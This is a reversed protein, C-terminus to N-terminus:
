EKTLLEQMREQLLLEDEPSYDMDIYAIRGNRDIICSVRRNYGEPLYSGYKRATIHGPDNIYQVDHTGLLEKWAQLLSPTSTSIMLKIYQKQIRMDDEVLKIEDIDRIQRGCFVFDEISIHPLIGPALRGSFAAPYFSLLVVQGKLDSLRKGDGLEFDPAEDGPQLPKDRAWALPAEGKGAHNKLTNELPKLHEGQAEYADDRLLVRGKKDLLFVVASAAGTAPVPLAFQNFYEGADFLVQAGSIISRARLMASYDATNKVLYRVHVEPKRDWGEFAMKDTFYHYFAQSLMGAYPCSTDLAPVFALITYDPSKKYLTDASLKGLPFLEGTHVQQAAANISFLICSLLILKKM